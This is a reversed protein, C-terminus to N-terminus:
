KDTENTHTEYSHANAKKWDRESVCEICSAYFLSVASAITQSVVLTLKCDMMPVQAEITIYNKWNYKLQSEL